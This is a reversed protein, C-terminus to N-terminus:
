DRGVMENGSLGYHKLWEKQKGYERTQRHDEHKSYRRFM